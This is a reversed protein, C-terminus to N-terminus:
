NEKTRQKNNKRDTSVKPQDWNKTQPKNQEQTKQNQNKQAQEKQDLGKNLEQAEITETPRGM